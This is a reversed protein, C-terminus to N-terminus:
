SLFKKLDVFRCENAQRFRSWINWNSVYLIIALPEANGLRSKPKALRHRMSAIDNNGNVFFSNRKLFFSSVFAIRSSQKFWHQHRACHLRPKGERNPMWLTHIGCLVANWVPKWMTFEDHIGSCQVARASFLQFSSAWLTHASSIEYSERALTHVEHKMKKKQKSECPSSNETVKRTEFQLIESPTQDQTTFQASEAFGSKEEDRDVRRTDFNAATKPPFPLHPHSGGIPRNRFRSVILLRQLRFERSVTHKQNELRNPKCDSTLLWHTPPLDTCM